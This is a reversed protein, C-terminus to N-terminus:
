FARCPHPVKGATLTGRWCWQLLWGLLGPLLLQLMQMAELFAKGQLPGQPM